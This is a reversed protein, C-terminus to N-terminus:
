SLLLLLESQLWKEEGQVIRQTIEDVVTGYFHNLEQHSGFRYRWDQREFNLYIWRSM